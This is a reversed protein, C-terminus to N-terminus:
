SAKSLAILEDAFSALGLSLANISADLENFDLNALQLTDRFLLKTGGEDIVFAGHVLERNMQLLRRFANAGASVPLEMILQEIVLIEDECDVILNSIGRSEDELVCLTKEADEREVSVDLLEVYEMVKQFYEQSM